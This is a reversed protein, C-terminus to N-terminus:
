GGHRVFHRQVRAAGPLQQLAPCSGHALARAQQHTARLEYLTQMTFMGRTQPVELRWCRTVMKVMKEFGIDSEVAAQLDTMMEMHQQRTNKFIEDKRERIGPLKCVYDPRHPLLRAALQENLKSQAWALMPKFVGKTVEKEYLYIFLQQFIGDRPKGEADLFNSKDSAEWGADKLFAPWWKGSTKSYASATTAKQPAKPQKPRAALAEVTLTEPLAMPATRQM